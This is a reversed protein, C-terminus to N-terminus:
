ESAKQNAIQPDRTNFQNQKSPRFRPNTDDAWGQGTPTCAFTAALSRPSPVPRSSHHYHHQRAATWWWSMKPSLPLLGAACLCPWLGPLFVAASSSSSSEILLLTFKLIATNANESKYLYLPRQMERNSQTVKLYCCCVSDDTFQQVNANVLRSQGPAGCSHSFHLFYYFNHVYKSAKRM